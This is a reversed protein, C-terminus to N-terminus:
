NSMCLGMCLHCSAVLDLEALLGLSSQRRKALAVASRQPMPEIYLSGHYKEAVLLWFKQICGEGGLCRCAARQEARRQAAVMM